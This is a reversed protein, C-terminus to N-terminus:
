TESGDFIKVKPAQFNAHNFLNFAETRFQLRARDGFLPFNKFLSFDDEQLRPGRLTNRGLNGLTGLAPWSFCETRIYNAINGPNTANPTCGPGPNFDPRQGGSSSRVRSDGTRARDTQITVTFPAGSCATFIGGLEWGGLVTRAAGTLAGSPIAWSYHFVFNHTLDFDSVGKQLQPLFAYSNGSTNTGENDSFTNSGLDISKSWTYAARLFFGHSFRKSLDSVLAQYTSHDDWLTSAIRSFAPNIRQITGTKPFQVHGDPATTVLNLPVQDIDEISRPLHNARSGVYGATLVLDPLLQRQVTFNWQMSYARPPDQQVYTERKSGVQLLQLAGTPFPLAPPSSISGQLFVPYGNTRNEMLYAFPLVDYIGFGTRISSKGNGAPDWALAVRPSFNKAPPNFYDKGTVPVADSLNALNSTRGHQENLPNVYEYRLGVTVKLNPRVAFADEAFLGLYTQRIGRIDLSGPEDGTFQGPLGMLFNTVTDFDYEGLPISLSNKNYRMREVNGGFALTHRGRVWTLDDGVQFSTYNLTDSGSAGIGGQTGTLGAITIVGAPRGPFFGLSTDTAVANLAAQDLADTAHTRSVGARVVNLLAPSFVHQLTLIGNQHRSPSGTLKQNYPDPQGETTDDAQYSGSLSTRDSFHHDIKAAGYHEM